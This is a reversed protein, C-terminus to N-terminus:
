RKLRPRLPRFLTSSSPPCVLARAPPRHRRRAPARDHLQPPRRGRGLVQARWLASPLQDALQLVAAFIAATPLVCAKNVAVSRLRLLDINPDDKAYGKPAVKLEQSLRPALSVCADAGPDLGPPRRRHFSSPPLSAVCTRGALSAAGARSTPSRPRRSPQSPRATTATARRAASRPRRRPRRRCRRARASSPSLPRSTSSAASASRAAPSRPGSHPVFARTPDPDSTPTSCPRPAPRVCRINALEDKQPDWLGFAVM